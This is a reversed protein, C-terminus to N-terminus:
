KRRGALRRIADSAVEIGAEAALRVLTRAAKRKAEAPVNKTKFIQGMANRIAAKNYPAGPAKKLPLYCKAKIKERGENLDILCVSCFQEPTLDSEPTSWSEDTFPM